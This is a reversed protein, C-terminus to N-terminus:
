GKRGRRFVGVLEVHASYRFQDVPTVAELAYGGAALTAADRAFSGADCSVYIVDRVKSAALRRVQAEAGARPPDLVVVDFGNLEHELLPRRFLDRAETAIPKLGPTAGFGKALALMAAKDSEVALVQMREALRVSFPGCGAFLDAARKGKPLAAMVLGALTEEGLATAQLFGGPPPAVLAKGMQQLPPRREVVIEGHNSLRALDLREALQTLALRLKDGLPGHGRLDVDLGAESATLQIDLPKGAGGMRNALMQAVAPARDLGPVLVPCAEVEILEHSRAAMFGVVMAEGQRRAHFTVRRRGAGHADILAGVPAAVGARELATVVQRRKWERYLDPAMHQAACGGCRTFLPCIAAIRSGSPALIEVLQGREGDVVARVTEGPLAYPVFVSGSAMRAIGDGRQGLHDVTLIENM